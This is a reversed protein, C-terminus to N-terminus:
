DVQLEGVGSLRVALTPEQDAPAKCKRYAQHQGILWERGVCVIGAGTLTRSGDIRRRAIVRDEVQPFSVTLPFWPPAHVAWTAFPLPM